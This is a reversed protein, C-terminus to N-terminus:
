AMRTLKLGSGAKTVTNEVVASNQAWQYQLNGATTSVVLIGVGVIGINTGIGNGGAAVAGGSTYADSLAETWALATSWQRTIISMTSGAPFTLAWKYDATTGAQYLIFFDVWYTASASVAVVLEDDNQLATSNSVTEDTTKRVAVPRVETFLASLISSRLKGVGPISTFAM